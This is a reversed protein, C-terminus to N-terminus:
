CSYPSNADRIAICSKILKKFISKGVLYFYNKLNKGVLNSLKWVNSIFESDLLYHLLYYAANYKYCQTPVDKQCKSDEGCDGTLQRNHYYHACRQLLKEVQDLDNATVELCSTRNSLFAVYNAPTWSRCCENKANKDLRLQCLSIFYPNSRLTEDIRCQALVGELSWLNRNKLHSGIVVRAYSPSPPNCFFVEDSGFHNIANDSVLVNEKKTDNQWKKVKKNKTKKKRIRQDSSNINEPVIGIQLM